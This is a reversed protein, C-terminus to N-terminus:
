CDGCNRWRSAQRPTRGTSKRGSTEASKSTVPEIQCVIPITYPALPTAYV